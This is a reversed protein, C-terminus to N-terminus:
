GIGTWYFVLYTKLYALGFISRNNYPQILIQEFIFSLTGPLRHRQTGTSYFAMRVLKGSSLVTLSQLPFYIRIGGKSIASAQWAELIHCLFLLKQYSYATAVLIRSKWGFLFIVNGRASCCLLRLNPNVTRSSGENVAECSFTCM